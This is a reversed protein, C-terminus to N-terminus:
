IEADAFEQCFFFCCVKGHCAGNCNVVTQCNSVDGGRRWPGNRACRWTAWSAATSRWWCSSRLWRVSPHFRANESLLRMAQLPRQSTKPVNATYSTYTLLRLSSHYINSPTEPWKQAPFPLAGVGAWANKRTWDLKRMHQLEPKSRTGLPELANRRPSTGLRETKGPPYAIGM